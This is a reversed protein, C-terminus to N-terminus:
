IETSLFTPRQAKGAASEPSKGNSKISHALDAFKENKFVEAVRMFNQATRQAWDFEASLWDEWQGHELLEKVERLHNGIEFVNGLGNKACSKIEGTRQRVVNRKQENVLGYDFSALIVSTERTMIKGKMIVSSFNTAM